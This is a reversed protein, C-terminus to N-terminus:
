QQEYKHEAKLEEIVEQKTEEKIEQILKIIEGKLSMLNSGGVARNIIYQLRSDVSM